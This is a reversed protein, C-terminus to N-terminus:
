DECANYSYTKGLHKLSLGIDSVLKLYLLWLDHVSFECSILFGKIQQDQVWSERRTSQLCEM